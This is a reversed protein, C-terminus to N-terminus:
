GPPEFQILSRYVEVLIGLRLLLMKIKVQEYGYEWIIPLGRDERLGAATLKYDTSLFRRVIGLGKMFM